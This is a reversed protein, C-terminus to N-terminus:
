KNVDLGLMRKDKAYKAAEKAPAYLDSLQMPKFDPCLFAQGPRPSVDSALGRFPAIGRRAAQAEGERQTKADHCNRCLLQLNEADDSGGESLPTRRDCHVEQGGRGLSSGCTACNNRQRSQLAERLEAPVAARKHQVLGRPAMIGVFSASEGNYVLRLQKQRLAACIAELQRWEKPRQRVYVVANTNGCYVHLSKPSWPVNGYTRSFRIQQM